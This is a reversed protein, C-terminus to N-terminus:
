AVDDEEDEDLFGLGDAMDAVDDESMYQLCYDAVLRPDLAGEDMLEMLRNTVKRANTIWSM